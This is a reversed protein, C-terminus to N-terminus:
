RVLVGPNLIGQPDLARKIATMAALDTSGAARELAARKAIGIGHEASISGGMTAVLALIDDDVTFDDPPLGLINVHLNGDGVHGFWVVRAPPAAANVHARVARRFDVLQDFPLTVDLKHPVGVANIAETHRDRYAWLHERGAADTAVATARVQPCAGLVGALEDVLLDARGARAGCEVLLYAPHSRDFPLHLGTHECVLALGDAFFVELATLSDIERRLAAGVALVDDFGDFACLTVVRDPLEPVLALHVRTVIALTGEAGTLLGALDYGTNDKRLGPIHGVVDGDALVAEVGLVQDRMPGYRLVHVGGANTSVMGGITATDRSAMDIGVDWGAARAQTRVASLVAGAGVVVEGHQADVPAIDDLRRLSVVVEGGRPVGGGVLGTNGGQPVLPAAATSCLRVVQAVEDADAPRVVCRASGHFRRTWDTEYAARVDADIVVNAPGVVAVLADILGDDSTV